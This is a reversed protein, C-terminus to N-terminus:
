HGIIFEYNQNEDFKISCNRTLFYKEYSNKIVETYKKSSLEMEDFDFEIRTISLELNQTNCCFM